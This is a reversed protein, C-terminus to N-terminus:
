SQCLSEEPLLLDPECQRPLRVPTLNECSGDGAREVFPVVEAKIKLGALTWNEGEITFRLQTGVFINYEDQSVPNCGRTNSDGFVIHRLNLPVTGNVFGAGPIAECEDAPARYQWNAYELFQHAHSPRHEIKLNLDGRIDQLHLSLSNEKKLAFPDGFEYQKTYIISKIKRKRGYVRDFTADKRLEFIRNGGNKAIIFCRDKITCIDMPDIGTWIGTWVPTGQSLLSASNEVDLVVFGAHAYDTVPRQDRTLALTRYPRASVFVRNNFYGCVAFRRLFEEAKLYNQVERSIPVNSWKKSEARSASLAHIDGSSSAFILDSNTNIYARPGAIGTNDLLVGGFQGTTWGDRPQDTKYFYFKRESAVFLPGVGMSKDLEQIFGMAAIPYNTDEESLSFFQNVFPSSPLYVETFSVPAEPILLTGTPDGATFEIGANAVFLRNHNYAGLMSVPIQPVSQGNRKHELTSRTVTEGEIILPYDPYDFIVVKDAALSWNVRSAYQNLRLEKALLITKGTRVNTRFILGSIATILYSEPYVFYPILAQFKGSQWIDQYTRHHRYRTEITGEEFDLNLEHYGSRPSLGGSRISLNVGRAYQNPQIRDPRHWADQGLSFDISGDPVLEAM